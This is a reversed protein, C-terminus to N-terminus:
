DDDALKELVKFTEEQKQQQKATQIYGREREQIRFRAAGYGM